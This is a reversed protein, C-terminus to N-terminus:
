YLAFFIVVKFFDDKTKLTVSKEEPILNPKVEEQVPSPVHRGRGLSEPLSIRQKRMRSIWNYFTGPNINHMQHCEMSLQMWEDCSVRESKM